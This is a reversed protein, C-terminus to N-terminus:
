PNYRGMIALLLIKLILLNGQLPSIKTPIKGRSPYRRTVPVETVRYGLRPARIALYYHLEYTSFVERFPNVNRDLLFKASYGRFGNTSDTYRIGSALSILPAHILRIAWHRMWPTHIGQGGPIFRSGQIHDFGEELARAFLNVASTDDKNNGDIAIVGQYGRIISYAFAMRMQASLKGRGTKVILANVQNSSLFNANTSDDTSGGDAILIDYNEALPAMEQIQKQIKEGENLTFVCIAIKNKKPSFEYVTFEPLQWEVPFIM